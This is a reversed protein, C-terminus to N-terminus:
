HRFFIPIKQEYCQILSEHQMTLDVNDLGNLLCVRYFDPIFFKYLQNNIEITSKVLNVYCKIGIIKKVVLFIKDIEEETLTILLLHNNFSNNYFIDAFSSAIILKIGYDMLAWVAHERSSGCGFNNRSLLVNACRYPSQNLIFNCNEKKRQTDLFRWDHFLYQGFGERTVKQLFQKPIIADTDINSIDLPAIIGTHEEFKDM